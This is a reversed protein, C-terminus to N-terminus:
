QTGPYGDPAVGTPAPEVSRAVAAALERWDKAVHRLATADNAYHGCLYVDFWLGLDFQVLTAAPSAAM